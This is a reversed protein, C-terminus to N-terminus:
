ASIFRAYRNYRVIKMIDIEDYLRDQAEHFKENM